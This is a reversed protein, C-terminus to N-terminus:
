IALIESVDWGTLHTYVKIQSEWRDSYESGWWGGSAGEAENEEALGFRSKQDNEM